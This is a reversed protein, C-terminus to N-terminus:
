KKWLFDRILFPIDQIYKKLEDQTLIIGAEEKLERIACDKVCEDKELTGKPFGWLKGRSQVLLISGRASNYVFVGVKKNNKDYTFHSVTSPDFDRTIIRCCKKNCYNTEM